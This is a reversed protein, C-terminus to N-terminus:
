GVADVVSRAARYRTVARATDEAVLDGIDAAEGLVGQALKAFNDAPM